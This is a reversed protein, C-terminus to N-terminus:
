TPPIHQPGDCPQATANLPQRVGDKLHESPVRSRIPSNFEIYSERKTPKNKSKFGQIVWVFTGGIAICVAALSGWVVGIGCLALLPVIWLLDYGTEVSLTFDTFEPHFHWVAFSAPICLIWLLAFVLKKYRGCYKTIYRSIYTITGFIAWPVAFCAGGWRLNYPKVLLMSVAFAIISVICTLRKFGEQLNMKGFMANGDIQIEVAEV